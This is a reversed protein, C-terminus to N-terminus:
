REYCYPEFGKNRDQEERFTSYPYQWCAPIPYLPVEECVTEHRQMACPEPRLLYIELHIEVRICFVATDSCTDGGIMRLCPVIFLSNRWQERQHGDARYSVETQVVATANYRKGESDTIACCVPISVLIHNRMDPGHTEVPSWWPQAGSQHVSELRFPACACPPVNELTIQTCLQPITRKECCVIKQLLVSECRPKQPKVPVRGCVVGSYQPPPCAKVPRPWHVARHMPASAPHQCTKCERREMPMLAAPAACVPPPCYPATIGECCHKGNNKHDYCSM